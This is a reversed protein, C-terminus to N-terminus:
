GGGGDDDLKSTPEGMSQESFATVTFDFETLGGEDMGWGTAGAPEGTSKRGLGELNRRGMDKLGTLREERGARGKLTTSEGVLERPRSRAVVGM